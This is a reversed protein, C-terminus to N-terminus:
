DFYFWPPCHLYHKDHQFCLAWYMAYTAASGRHGVFGECQRAAQIAAWWEATAQLTM